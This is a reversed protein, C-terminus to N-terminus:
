GYQVTYSIQVTAYSLPARTRNPHASGTPERPIRGHAATQRRRGHTQKSYEATSSSAETDPGFAILHRPWPWHDHTGVHKHLGLSFAGSSVYQCLRHRFPRCRGSSRHIFCLALNVALKSKGTATAGMVVVVDGKSAVTAEMRARM